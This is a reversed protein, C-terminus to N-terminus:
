AAVRIANHYAAVARVPRGERLWCKLLISAVRRRLSRIQAASLGDLQSARELLSMYGRELGDLNTMASGDRLRYEYVDEQVSGYTLGASHALELFFILDECHTVGIPFGTTGITSTRFMYFPGFFFPEELQALRSLIKCQESSPEYVRELVGERTVRIRGNVIDVDPHAGLYDVRAKLAHTPLVDDADLFTVYDGTAIDLGVNRAASVGANEQQVVKIRPDDFGALVDATGDTSGDNIIILEWNTHSQALVSAVAEGVFHEGNYVPTIISVLPFPLGTQLQPV